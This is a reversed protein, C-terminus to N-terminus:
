PKPIIYYRDKMLMGYGEGDVFLPGFFTGYRGARMHTFAESKTSIFNIDRTYPIFLKFDISMAGRRVFSGIGNEDFNEQIPSGAVTTDYRMMRALGARGFERANADLYFIPVRENGSIVTTGTSNQIQPMGMWIRGGTVTTSIKQGVRFQSTAGTPWINWSWSYSGSAMDEMFWGDRVSEPYKSIWTIVGEVYDNLDMIFGHMFITNQLNALNGNFDYPERTFLRFEIHYRYVQGGRRTSIRIIDGQNVEFEPIDYFRATVGNASHMPTGNPENWLHNVSCNFGAVTICPTTAFFNNAANVAECPYNNRDGGTVVGLNNTLVVGATAGSPLPPITYMGYPLRHVRVDVGSVSALEIRINVRNAGALRTANGLVVVIRDQEHLRYAILPDTGTSPRLAFPRGNHGFVHGMYNFSPLFTQPQGNHKVELGVVRADTAATIQTGRFRKRNWNWPRSDDVPKCVIETITGVTSATFSHTIATNADSGVILTLNADEIPLDPTHNIYLSAGAQAKHIVLDASTGNSSFDIVVPGRPEDPPPGTAPMFNNTAGYNPAPFEAYPLRLRVGAGPTYTVNLIRADSEDGLLTVTYNRIDGDQSETRINLENEENFHSAMDIFDPLAYRNTLMRPAPEENFWMRTHFSFTTVLGRILAPNGDAHIVYDSVLPDFAPYLTRGEFAIERVRSDGNPGMGLPEIACAAFVLVGFLLGILFFAPSHLQIKV